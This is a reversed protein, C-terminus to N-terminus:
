ILGTGTTRNSIWNVTALLTLNVVSNFFGIATGFDFQGQILGIDYVYTAIVQSTQLNAPTQMLLVKEFGINMIHGVSLILLVMITPVLLPIDIHRLRQLKRAGDIAAAEYLNPDVSSLAALYIIAAFGAHQWIHSLVYLHPFWQPTGFFFVPEGGFVEIIHNVVGSSPSMMLRMIAVVVVISVFHPAYLITQATRRVKAGTMQNLLLALIIPIPFSAVLTYVSVSLTNRLVQGFMYSGFFRRFHDFGIWPSLWIGKSIRFDKFALTVGFMPLYHFILFYLLAPLLLLYLDGNGLRAGRLRHTDIIRTRRQLM